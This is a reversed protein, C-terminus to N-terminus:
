MPGKIQSHWPYLVGRMCVGVSVQCWFKHHDFQLLYKLDEDLMEISEVWLPDLNVKMKGPVEEPEKYPPCPPPLYPLFDIEEM